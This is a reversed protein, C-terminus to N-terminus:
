RLDPWQLIAHKCLDHVAYRGVVQDLESPPIGTGPRLAVLMSPELVTGQKIDRALVLSRRAVAKTDAEAAAPRKCGDGLASEITRVGRVLAALQDPEMSARHDPGPLTRDLTFHKELICAGMAVAALAVENGLVHDSYGVPVHFAQAMATMARLNVDAPAAPYNSVCHLLALPPDGAAQIAGVAEGVEALTSMGTSVILPKGKRALHALFPLNNIEGSPVKIAPVGIRDLYDASEYDFPTSLFLIGRGAAYQQLQGFAELPLELRKVMDLQSEEAATSQEQYAAKPAAATALSEAKFTQFKVADAGAEVAADILRRALDADGNHNVGAEAIIFCPHGVGIKRGALELPASERNALMARAIQLDCPTDIDVSREAPMAFGRTDDVVFSRKARLLSPSAVYVAGNLRYTVTAGQRQHLSDNHIAPSLRRQSDLFYSWAIPHENLCVSVVPKGTEEHLRIAGAIDEAEVLPSTPQILVVPDFDEGLADLAHLVVDMSKASDSALEAPRLFPTEAGWARAVQAIQVSDTSCVIRYPKGALRAAQRAVRCSRGVLPIGAVPQLNKAPLGKSGGRAPILFLIKAATSLTKRYPDFDEQM